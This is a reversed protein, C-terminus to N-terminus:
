LRPYFCCKPTYKRLEREMKSIQNNYISKMEKIKLYAYLRFVVQLFKLSLHDLVRFSEVEFDVEEETKKVHEKKRHSLFTSNIELQM